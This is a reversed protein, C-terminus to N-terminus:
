RRRRAVHPSAGASGLRHNRLAHASSYEIAAIFAPWRSPRRPQDIRNRRRLLMRIASTQLETLARRAGTWSRRPQASKPLSAARIRHWRPPAAIIVFQTWRGSRVSWLMGWLLSFRLIVRTGAFQM